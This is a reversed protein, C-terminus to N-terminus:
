VAATHGTTSTTSSPAYLGMETDNGADPDEIDYFRRHGSPASSGVSSVGSLNSAFVHKHEEQRCWLFAFPLDEDQSPPQAQRAWQDGVRSANHTRHSNLCVLLPCIYM